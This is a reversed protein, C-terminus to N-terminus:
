ASKQVHKRMTLYFSDLTRQKPTNNSDFVVIEKKYPRVMYTPHPSPMSAYVFYTHMFNARSTAIGRRIEKGTEDKLQQELEGVIDGLTSENPPNDFRFVLHMHKGRLELYVDALDKM